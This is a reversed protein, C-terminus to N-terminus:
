ANADGSVNGHVANSTILVVYDVTRRVMDQVVVISVVVCIRVLIGRMLICEPWISMIVRQISRIAVVRVLLRIRMRWGM